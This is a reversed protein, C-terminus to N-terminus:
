HTVAVACGVAGDGGGVARPACGCAVGVGAGAFVRCRGSGTGGDFGCDDAVVVRAATPIRAPIMVSSAVAVGVGRGGCRICRGCMRLLCRVECGLRRIGGLDAVRTGFVCSAGSVGRVGSRGVGSGDPRGRDVGAGVGVPYLVMCAGDRTVVEFLVGDPVMELDDLGAAVQPFYEDPDVPYYGNM